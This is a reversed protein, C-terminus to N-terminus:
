IIHNITNINPENHKPESITLLMKMFKHEDLFLPRIIKNNKCGRKLVFSGDKLPTLCLDLNKCYYSLVVGEKVNPPYNPKTIKKGYNDTVIIKFTKQEPFMRIKYNKYGFLKEIFKKIDNMDFKKEGMEIIINETIM